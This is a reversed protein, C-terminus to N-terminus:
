RGVWTPARKEVFARPGEKADDTAMVVLMRERSIRRLEPDSRDGVARAIALAERVAVPANAAVARAIDLAADIVRDSPALENVMGFRAATEADIPTGTAIMGLAINRPLVRAIRHVGGAAAMLGLKAEPLGFRSEPSAVIMDCALCLECAGGLAPGDVAAIWPKTRVADVLGAFGGDGPRLEHARGAAVIKLDGGASFLGPTSSALVVARIAPDAEIRAVAATMARTTEVDIANRASPRNLRLLAVHADVVDFLLSAQTEDSM